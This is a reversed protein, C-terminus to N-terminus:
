AECWFARWAGRLGRGGPEPISDTESEGKWMAIEQKDEGRCGGQDHLNFNRMSEFLILYYISECLWDRWSGGLERGDRSDKRHEVWDEVRYEVWYEDEKNETHCCLSYETTM